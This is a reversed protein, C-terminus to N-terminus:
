GRALVLEHYLRELPPVLACWDYRGEVLRRASLALERRRTADRLLVGVAGAFGEPTDAVIADRGPVLDIGEAGLSTTVVPAGYAFAELLKLRSGGGIRLPAVYAGAQRFHPEVAPVAGVVDVGAVAGLARVAATPARGVIEFRAAPVRARLLPWVVEVFWVVADVNPRYDMTGTFLVTAGDGDGDRLPLAATDVGNPVVILRRPTGARRLALADPESVAVVADASAVAAGEYRRLKAAQLASYTGGIWRRNQLDTRSMRQQLIWECNHADLVVPPLSRARAATRWHPAMELAEVQVIDWDENLVDSLAARYAKSELRRALDPCPDTPASLARRWARREPIPLVAVVRCIQALAEIALRDTPDGLTLVAVDHRRALEKILGLNRIRTGKDNPFPLQPTLFLVRV